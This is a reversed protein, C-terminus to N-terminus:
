LLNHMNPQLISITNAKYEYIKMILYVQFNEHNEWIHDWHRSVLLIYTGAVVHIAHSM